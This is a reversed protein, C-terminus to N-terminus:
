TSERNQHYKESVRPILVKKNLVQNYFLPLGNRDVKV